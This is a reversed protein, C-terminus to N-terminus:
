GVGPSAQRLNLWLRLAILGAAAHIVVLVVAIFALGARSAGVQHIVELLDFVAFVVAVGVIALPVLATTMRLVALALLLSVAIATGVLLPSELDIGFPRAEANHEATTEGAAEGSSAAPQASHGAEGAEGGAGEAPQSAAPQSSPAVAVPAGSTAAAREFYIGVSFLVASGVLLLALWARLSMRDTSM